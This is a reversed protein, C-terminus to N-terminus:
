EACQPQKSEETALSMIMKKLKPWTIVGCLQGHDTVYLQQADLASMVHFAQQITTDASLQLPVPQISCGDGLQMGNPRDTQSRLFTELDSRRAFGLLIRSEHSAVIPFKTGPCTSLALRVEKLGSQRELLVEGAGSAGGEGEDAEQSCWVQGIQVDSLQPSSRLLSPLHPLQKVLSLVDYLSARRHSRAVANALLVAVLTPVAHTRQGTLELVLIAPSITHTVAGSFAAAGALAYGGPNIQSASGGSHIGSPFMYALGEGVLRGIAAGYIFIPMFFGAPLPLTSALVLLWLKMILFVGLTYFTSTGAPRWEMWLTELDKQPVTASANLSLVQWQRGDLLSALLQKMSLKAAMLHGAGHPFTVSALILAVLGSYMVRETGLIRLVVRNTRIFLLSWRFCRLFVCGTAGCLLGLFAFVLMEVACYPLDTSFSTKFLAQITEQERSWVALLRFTMAGAAASFFCRCYNRVAFRTCTAEMSFLVGSVPAGFCSAVGVAAAAVLMGNQGRSQKEGQVSVCLRDLLAGVMTSVHIFPSVKGLFVASGAALTCTLGVVKAFLNSLSLYHPMDFGLLMTRVEPLGSGASQPCVSHSFGTSLACLSVPYLTWCLFQLVRHGQLENYLWSHAKLLKAVSLDMFFSIFATLVGLAGLCYWEVGGVSGMVGWIRRVNEKVRVRADQWPKSPQQSHLLHKEEVPATLKCSQHENNDESKSAAAEGTACFGKMTNQKRELQSELHFHTVASHQKSPGSM